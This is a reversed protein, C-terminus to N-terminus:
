DLFVSIFKFSGRLILIGERERESYEEGLSGM